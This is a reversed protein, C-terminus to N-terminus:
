VLPGVVKMPHAETNFVWQNKGSHEVQWENDTAHILYSYKLVEAFWFSEQFDDYGGGGAINVNLLGSFGSGVRTTANIHVFADWAWDRYKQDGTARYAYYYSEIVEPRLVYNPSTIWFGAQQFFAASAAPPPPNTNSTNPTSDEVWRFAEPGIGTATNTYTDHCGATLALGFDVYKQEELVLGGLIFNGGNFCALHQSYFIKTTGQYMAMFTVDPHTAPHSALNDISSDAAKIWRDKYSAFRTTDYVYMKILYEYYSDTGGVWGGSADEFQGTAINISSGVLGPFPESTAPKPNNLYSEARQTLQAYTKNGTLDSLRTWELVLTGVTALGNTTSGDNRPPDFYLNNYPIGSPTNFAFALNDALRQAQSLLKDVAAPSSALNSLPGKLLDYASLLGGIFRITTEFLSIQSDDVAHDFDVTPVYDVITDVIDPLQMLLATSLADVASAGWGNRSDSFTNSVPHLEDHPFAHKYYGDWAHQFAEKVQDSRACNLADKDARHSAQHVTPIAVGTMSCLGLVSILGVTLYGSYM